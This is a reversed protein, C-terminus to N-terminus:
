IQVTARYNSLGEYDMTITHSIFPFCWGNAHLMVEQVKNITLNYLLGNTGYTEIRFPLGKKAVSNTDQYEGLGSNDMGGGQHFYVFKQTGLSDTIKARNFGRFERRKNDWMGGR